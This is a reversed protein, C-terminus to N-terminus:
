SNCRRHVVTSCRRHEATADDTCLPPADDTCLPPADDICLPPADDICLPPADDICTQADVIYTCRRKSYIENIEHLLLPCGKINPSYIYGLNGSMYTPYRWFLIHSSSKERSGLSLGCPHLFPLIKASVQVHLMVFSQFRLKSSM